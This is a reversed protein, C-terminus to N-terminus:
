QQVLPAMAVILSGVLASFASGADGCDTMHYAEGDTDTEEIYRLLAVAGALTTPATTLLAVTAATERDAPGYSGREWAEHAAKDTFPPENKLSASFAARAHKHGDILVFIPDVPCIATAVASAPVIAAISALAGLASRRTLAEAVTATNHKTTM